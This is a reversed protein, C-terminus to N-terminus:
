RSPIIKKLLERGRKLRVGVTSIPIHLIDGIEQYEFEEFYYLVLPERYKTNIQGLANDLVDRIERRKTLDDAGEKALPHPFLLDPDFFGLPERGKKKIANICENHAIRYIWPSFRRSSDFSQLNTYAKIFVDQVLDKADENNQTFKSAYRWLKTEYRNLLTGFAEKNGQQVLRAITEDSDDPINM